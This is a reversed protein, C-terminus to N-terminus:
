NEVLAYCADVGLNGDCQVRGDEVLMVMTAFVSRQAAPFMHEPVDGGYMGPVMAAITDAGAALAALVQAAREERHRILARVFTKPDEICTGHTPWYREDDRDLLLDLSAVYDGMDGDPPSVITTSWGMVHDGPFLVKTERWAYCIHNSTHGPTYVCEMSWGDGDIIDGHRVEVDPAFEMDGGEEVQVGSEIKGAGHPGYGYITGGVRAQLPRSAPSHDIHTHTILIHTVTDGALAEAVADVHADLAPGPDIVAVNGHGVIYTGTGHFTFDSPNRAIVRRLGPAVEEVTGYDFKLDRRFPIPNSM